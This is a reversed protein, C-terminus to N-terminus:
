NTPQNDTIIGPVLHGDPIPFDIGLLKAILPAINVVAMEKIHGGKNIGTGVAIFGTWMDPINPDYGHHGGDTEFFLGEDTNQQIATGPGYNIKKAPGMSGSFVLGPTAALAILASSDAGMKDLESRTLIRFLKRKEDPLQNLSDKVSKVIMEEDGKKTGPNRYLFCSGGAATFGAKVNKILRNPRMVQHITSFGHDGVIIVATSNSLGSQQIAQMVDGIARDNSELALRVSDADRGDDHEKGDLCAFHLAMFNPKYAKFIYAAMRGANEDLSFYSDNMNSSDLKGTANKEIEEYIGKPIAQRRVVTARDEPHDKDWIESLNYTIPGDVTNPWMVAASTMGAKNLADFITPAKIENYYWNWDGTSNKPQNYAIGSRAPMAGTLMAAHSPHTYAPFVSLCHDAYTGKKMLYQLNPTPWSKDLYMDPHFGDISILIVHKVQANSTLGLLFSMALALAYKFHKM